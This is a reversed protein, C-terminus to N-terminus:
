KEVEFRSPRPEGASVSSRTILITGTFYFGTERFYSARALSATVVPGCADGAQRSRAPAFMGAPNRGPLNDMPQAAEERM